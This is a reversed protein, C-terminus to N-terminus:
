RKLMEAMEFAESEMMANFIKIHSFDQLANIHLQKPFILKNEILFDRKTGELLPQSPTYWKEGQKLAINAYTTDTLFGNKVIIVEQNDVVLSNLLNRETFKFDYSFDDSVHVLRFSEISKVSYPLLEAFFFKEDYLFRCKFVQKDTNKTAIIKEEKSFIASLNHKKEFPFFHEFTRNLRKQHYALLPANGNQVKITELFPFM